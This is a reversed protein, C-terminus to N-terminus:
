LNITYARVIIQVDQGVQSTAWEVSPTAKEITQNYINLDFFGFDAAQIGTGLRNPANTTTQANIGSQMYFKDTDADMDVHINFDVMSVADQPVLTVLSLSTFVNATGVSDYVMLASRSEEYSYHRMSQRNHMVFELINSSANNRVHGMLRFKDHTAPLSIATGQPVAWTNNPNVGNSDFIVYIEYMTSAAEAVQSGGAAGTTSLDCQTAMDIEIDFENTSDVFHGFNVGVTSTNIYFLGGGYIYFPPYSAGLTTSDTILGQLSLSSLLDELAINNNRVGTITPKAVTSGGYFGIGTADTDLQNSNIYRIVLDGNSDWEYITSASIQVLDCRPTTLLLIRTRTIRIEFNTSTGVVWLPIDVPDFIITGSNRFGNTGDAPSFSAWTTPTDGTTYEFVPAIGFGSAVIDLIIEIESFKAASQITFTDNNVVFLVINGAGGGSLAVTVDVAINLLVDADIFVGSQQHLPNINAGCQIADTIANGTDTSVCSLGTVRGGTSLSQDINIFVSAENQVSTIAGTNLVIDVAKVDAFGGANVDIKLTASNDEIVSHIIELTEVGTINNTVSINVDREEIEIGTVNNFIAINGVTYSGGTTSVVDSNDLWSLNGSGDNQLLTDTGGQSTPFTWSIDGSISPMILKQFFASGGDKLWLGNDGNIVRVANSGCELSIGSTANTALLRISSTGIADTQSLIVGDSITRNGGAGSVIHIGASSDTTHIFIADISSESGSIDLQANSSMEIGSTAGTAAINIADAALQSTSLNIQESGTIDIGSLGSLVDVSSITVNSEKISRTTAGSTDTILINLDNTLTSDSSVNGTGSGNDEWSLNGSGDNTLVQDLTGQTDPYIWDIDASLTPVSILYSFGGVTDQLEFAGNSIVIPLNSNIVVSSGAGAAQIRVCEPLGISSSSLITIGGTTSLISIDKSSSTLSIGEGSILVSKANSTSTSQLILQEDSIISISTDENNLINTVCIDDLFVVKKNFQVETDIQSVGDPENIPLTGQLDGLVILESNGEPALTNIFTINNSM